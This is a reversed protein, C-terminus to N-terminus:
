LLELDGRSLAWSRTASPDLPLRESLVLTTLTEQTRYGISALAAASRPSSFNCLVFDARAAAAVRRLLRREIGADRREILLECVDALVFRGHRRRRFIAMGGENPANSRVARYSSWRGYRWRLYDDHKLTALREGHLEAPVTLRDLLLQDELASAASSQAPAPRLDREGARPGRSFVSLPLRACPRVFSRLGSVEPHGLRRGGRASASNPNGWVFEVDRSFETASRLALSIGLMRHRQEIALDVARLTAVIRGQASLLWPMYAYFGVISGDLEVVVMRSRGFPNELHKWRFYESRTGDLLARPWEGFASALLALVAPEDHAQFLRITLGKSTASAHGTLGGEALRAGLDPLSGSARM